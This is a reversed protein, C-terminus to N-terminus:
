KKRLKLEPKKGTQFFEYWEELWDRRMDDPELMRWPKNCGVEPAAPMLQCNFVPCYRCLASQGFNKLDDKYACDKPCENPFELGQINM